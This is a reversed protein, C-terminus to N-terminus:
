LAVKVPDHPHVQIERKSDRLVASRRWPKLVMMIAFVCRPWDPELGCSSVTRKPELASKLLLNDIM